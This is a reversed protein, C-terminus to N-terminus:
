TLMWIETRDLTAWPIYGHRELHLHHERGGPDAASEILITAPRYYHLDISRLVEMDHGECDISLLNVQPCQREQLISNLTRSVMRHESKVPRGKALQLRSWERSTTSVLDDAFEIFTRETECDSVLAQVFCDRPRARAWAHAFRPNADIAIGSWGHIYLRYTNSYKIPHNCGVDVFTGVDSLAPLSEIALDEGFQSFSLRSAGALRNASLRAILYRGGQLPGLSRIEAVSRRNFWKATM